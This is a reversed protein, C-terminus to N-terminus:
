ISGDKRRLVAGEGRVAESILFARERAPYLATPISSCSSWTRSRWGPATRWPLATARPSTPNTTHRYAQGLGGTALLV